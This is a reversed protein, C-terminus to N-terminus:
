MPENQLMGTKKDLLASQEAYNIANIYGFSADHGLM